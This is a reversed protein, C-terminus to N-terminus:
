AVLRVERRTLSEGCGSCSLVPRFRKGCAAHVIRFRGFDGDMWRQGWDVLLMVITHLAAGKETLRYFRRRANTAHKHRCVIGFRVFKELRSSLSTPPIELEREFEDFCHYGLFLAGLLGNSWRDGIIQITQWRMREPSKGRGAVTSRRYAPIDRMAGAYTGAVGSPQLVTDGAQVTEGCAACTLRPRVFKGCTLHKLRPYARKGAPVWASEWDWIALMLASLELGRETLWYEHHGDATPRRELVKYAVLRKLRDTLVLDPILLLERWAGYRRVGRFAQGIILLTWSDGLVALARRTPTVPPQRSSPRVAM